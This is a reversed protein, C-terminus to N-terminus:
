RMQGDEIRKCSKYVLFEEFRHWIDNIRWVNTNVWHHADDVVMGDIDTLANPCLCILSHRRLRVVFTELQNGLPLLGGLSCREVKKSSGQRYTKGETDISATSRLSLCPQRDIVEVVMQRPFEM